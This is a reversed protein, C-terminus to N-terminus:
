KFKRSVRHAICKVQLLAVRNVVSFSLLDGVSLFKYLVSLIDSSLELLLCESASAREIM